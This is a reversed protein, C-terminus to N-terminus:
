KQKQNTKIMKVSLNQFMMKYVTLSFKLLDKVIVDYIEQNMFLTLIKESIESIKIKLKKFLKKKKSTVFHQRLKDTMIINNILDATIRSLKMNQNNETVTLQKNSNKHTLESHSIM